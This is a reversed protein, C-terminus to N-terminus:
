EAYDPESRDLMKKLQAFHAFAMANFPQWGAATKEALNDSMVNLPQGTSYALVLTRCARELLYMAEFAEAVTQGACTVGHNGMMVTQHRAFCAALRQGEEANDAVGDFGLDVHVRNFFRATTQDIPKVSPDALGALATAYPPHLHLLVRAQPNAAHVNGHICWASADPADPRQMTGTDDFDLLLLDSARITSFHQWRANLLFQRGDDSVAASFHNGVSEHWDFHVALRFAAALDVRLAWLAADSRDFSRPTVANM